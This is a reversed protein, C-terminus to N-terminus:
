NGQEKKEKEQREWLEIMENRHRHFMEDAEKGQPYTELEQTQKVSLDHREQGHKTRWTGTEAIRNQIDRDVKEVAARRAEPSDDFSNPKFPNEASM